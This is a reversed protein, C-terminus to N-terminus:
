LGRNFLYQENKTSKNSLSGKERFITQNKNGEQKFFKNSWINNTKTTKKRLSGKQGFLGAIIPITTKGLKLDRRFIM